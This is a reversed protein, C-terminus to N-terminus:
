HKFSFFLLAWGIIQLVGGLPTVAGLISINTLVLLYLSGSFIITGILLLWAARYNKLPLASMVLLATAHYMQYRVGTEFTQLREPTVVDRLAHAGFAGFAVALLALAAGVKGPHLTFHADIGARQQVQNMPRNYRLFKQLPFPTQGSM